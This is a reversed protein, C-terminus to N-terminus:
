QYVRFVGTKSVLDHLTQRHQTFIMCGMSVLPICSSLAFFFHNTDGTKLYIITQGLAIITIGFAIYRISAMLLNPHKGTEIDVVCLKWPRMGTTAGKHWFGVYYAYTVTIFLLNQVWRAPTAGTLLEVGTLTLGVLIFTIAFVIILDYLASFMRTTIGVTKGKQRQSTAQQSVRESVSCERHKSEM